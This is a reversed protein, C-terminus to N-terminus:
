GPGSFKDSYVETSKTYNETGKTYLGQFSTM